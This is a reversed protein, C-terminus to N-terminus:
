SLLRETFSFVFIDNKGEADRRFFFNPDLFIGVTMVPPDAVEDAVTNEFFLDHTDVSGIFNRVLKPADAVIEILKGTGDVCSKNPRNVESFGFLLHLFYPM